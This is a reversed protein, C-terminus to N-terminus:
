FLRFLGFLFPSLTAHLCRGSTTTRFHQVFHAILPEKQLVRQVYSVVLLTVLFVISLIIKPFVSLILLYSRGLAIAKFCEVFADFLLGKQLTGPIYSEILLSDTFICLKPLNQCTNTVNIM